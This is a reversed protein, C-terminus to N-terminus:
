RSKISNMLLNSSTVYEERKSKNIPKLENGLQYRFSIDLTEKKESSFCLMITKETDFSYSFDGHSKGVTAYVINAEEDTM